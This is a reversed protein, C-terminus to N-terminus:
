GISLSVTSIKEQRHKFHVINPIFGAFFTSLIYFEWTGLSDM